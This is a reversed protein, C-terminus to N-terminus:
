SRIRYEETSEFLNLLEALFRYAAVWLCGVSGLLIPLATYSESFPFVPDPFASIRAVYVFSTITLLTFFIFIALSIIVDLARRVRNNLRVYVYDLSIDEDRNMLVLYGLFYVASILVVSAQVTYISSVGFVSRSVAEFGNMGVVIIFSIVCVTATIKEIFNTIGGLAHVLKKM